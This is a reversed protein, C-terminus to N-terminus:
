IGELKEILDDRDVIMIDTDMNTVLRGDHSSGEIFTFKDKNTNFIKGNTEATIVNGNLYPRVYENKNIESITMAIYAKSLGPSPNLSMLTPIIKKNRSNYFRDNIHSMTMEQYVDQAACHSFVGYLNDRYKDKQMHEVYELITWEHPKNPNIIKAWTWIDTTILNDYHEKAGCDKDCLVISIRCQLLCYENLASYIGTTIHKYVEEKQQAEYRAESKTISSRIRETIEKFNIIYNSCKGTEHFLAVKEDILDCLELYAIEIHMTSNYKKLQEKILEPVLVVGIHNDNHKFLTVKEKYINSIENWDDIPSATILCCTADNQGSENRHVIMKEIAKSYGSLKNKSLTAKVQHFSIPIGNNYIVFDEQKELEVSFNDITLGQELKKNILFLIYFLTVKGQYNYGSWSSIADNPKRTGSM